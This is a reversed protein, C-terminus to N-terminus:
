MIYYRISLIVSRINVTYKKINNTLKPRVHFSTFCDDTEKFQLCVLHSHNLQIHNNQLYKINTFFALKKQIGNNIIIM